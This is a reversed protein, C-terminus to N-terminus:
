LNLLSDEVQKFYAKIESESTSDAQSAFSKVFKKQSPTMSKEPIFTNFRIIYSDGVPIYHGKLFSKPLRSIVQKDREGPRPDRIDILGLVAIEVFNKIVNIRDTLDVGLRDEDALRQFLHDTYISVGRMIEGDQQVIRTPIMIEVSKDTMRYLVEYERFEPMIGYGRSIFRWWVLWKNDTKPSNYEFVQSRKDESSSYFAKKLNNFSKSQFSEKAIMKKRWYRARERDERFEAVLEKPKTFRTIM